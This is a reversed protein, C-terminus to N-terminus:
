ANPFSLSAACSPAVGSQESPEKARILKHASNVLSVHSLAQPFNGLLRRREPDYEESLLGVDSRLKLLREFLREAEEHRSLLLYAEVMWFSCAIFAGEDTSLRDDSGGANHRRVFGDAM